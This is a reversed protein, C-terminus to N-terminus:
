TSRRSRPALLQEALYARLDEAMDLVTNLPRVGSRSPKSVFRELEKDISADLERPPTPELMRVRELIEAVSSGRFPRSRTLLEYLVLGLSFTDSRGDVLHGERRAQEPSMYVPTGADKGHQGYDEDRLALGFDALYPRLQPDILINAPKVDRHIVRHQHAYHLADAVTAVVEVAQRRGLPAEDTRTKLNGGEIFQAVVFCMGDKTRGFDYVPVIAPHNLSALVRAEQLYLEPNNLLRPHPVKIAVARKLEDDYCRYVQGFAGSGLIAEVRYRGIQAPSDRPTSDPGRPSPGTPGVDLEAVEPSQPGAADTAKNTPDSM